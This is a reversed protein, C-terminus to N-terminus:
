ISGAAPLGSLEWASQGHRGGPLEQLTSLEESDGDKEKEGKGFACLNVVLLM